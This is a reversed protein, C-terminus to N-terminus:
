LCMDFSHSTTLTNNTIFTLAFLWFSRSFLLSLSIFRSLTQKAFLIQLSSSALLWAALFGFLRLSRGGMCEAHLPPPTWEARQDPFNSLKLGEDAGIVTHGYLCGIMKVCGTLRRVADLRREHM